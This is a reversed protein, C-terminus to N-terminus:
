EGIAYRFHLRSIITLDPNLERHPFWIGNNLLTTLKARQLRTWRLTNPTCNGEAAGAIKILRRGERDGNIDPEPPTINWAIIILTITEITTDGRAPPSPPEIGETLLNM